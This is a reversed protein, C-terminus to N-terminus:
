ENKTTVIASNFTGPNEIKLGGFYELEKGAVLLQVEAVEEFQTLTNIISNITIITGSSGGWHQSVLESSFNVVLRKQESKQDIIEEEVSIVQSAKPVTMLVDDTTPGQILNELVRCWLNDQKIKKSVPVLHQAQLDSFYLKVERMKVETSSSQAKVLSLSFFMSLLVILIIVLCNLKLLELNFIM